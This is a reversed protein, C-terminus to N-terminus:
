LQRRLRASWKDQAEAIQGHETEADYVANQRSVEAIANQILRKVRAGLDASADASTQGTGVPWQEPTLARLKRAEVENIDVHGQEHALLKVGDTSFKPKRWMKSPVFGSRVDLSTLSATYGSGSRKWSTRFNYRIYTQTWASLGAPPNPNIPFDEWALQRYAVYGQAADRRSGETPVTIVTAAPATAPDAYVFDGLPHEAPAIQISDLVHVVKQAGEGSEIQVLEIKKVPANVFLTAFVNTSIAFKTGNLVVGYKTRIGGPTGGELWAGKPEFFLRALFMEPRAMMAQWATETKPEAKFNKHPKEYSVIRNGEVLIGLEKCEASVLQPKKLKITWSRTAGGIERDVFSVSLGESAALKAISDGVDERPAAAILLALTLIM